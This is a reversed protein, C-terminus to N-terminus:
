KFKKDSLIVDSVIVYYSYGDEKYGNYKPGYKIYIHLTNETIENFRNKLYEIQRSSFEVQFYHLDNNPNIFLESDIQVTIPFKTSESLAKKLEDEYHISDNCWKKFCEEEKEIKDNIKKIHNKQLSKLTFM